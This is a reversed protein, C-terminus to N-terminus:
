NAEIPCMANSFLDQLHLCNLISKPWIDQVWESHSLCTTAALINRHGQCSYSPARQIDVNDFCLWEGISAFPFLQIM